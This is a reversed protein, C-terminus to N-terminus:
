EGEGGKGEGGRRLIEWKYIGRGRGGMTNSGQYLVNRREAYAYASRKTQLPNATTSPIPKCVPTSRTRMGVRERSEESKGEGGINM